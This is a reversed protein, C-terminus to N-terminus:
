EDAADEEDKVCYDYICQKKVKFMNVRTPKYYPCRDCDTPEDYYESSNYSSAYEEDSIAGCRWDSYASM